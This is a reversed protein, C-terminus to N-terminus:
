DSCVVFSRTSDSFVHVSHEYKDISEVGCVAFDVAVRDVCYRLVQSQDWMLGGVESM